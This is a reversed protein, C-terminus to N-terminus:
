LGSLINIAKREGISGELGSFVNKGESHALAIAGISPKTTDFLYDTFKGKGKRDLKM